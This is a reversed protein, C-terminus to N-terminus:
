TASTEPADTTDSVDTSESVVTSETAAADVSAAADRDTCATLDAVFRQYQETGAAVFEDDAFDLDENQEAIQELDNDTYDEEVTALM